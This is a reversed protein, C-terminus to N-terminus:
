ILDVSKNEYEKIRKNIEVLDYIQQCVLELHKIRCYSNFISDSEAKIHCSRCLGMLNEIYDNTVKNRTRKQLHHVDVCPAHCMECPIYDGEEFNFFDLYVRTHKQM